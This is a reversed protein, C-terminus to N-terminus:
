FLPKEEIQKGCIEEVAFQVGSYAWKRESRGGSRIKQVSPFARVIEKGFQRESLPRYGNAKIWECYWHYLLGTIIMGSGSSEVFEKLFMRAPNMEERYDERAAEVLASKTFRGQQRLRALGLIAWNFIAPLEGSAEWWEAKDMGIVREEEPIQVLFPVLLMRRWIGDSRDSFRPRTNCSLMLRATPVINLGSIGKRDFYMRDGSTFSKVYGESMKDIEGVDGCINVLKGVTDTRSFRDGFVELQINSVNEGGLMATMAAGYASKGNAGEGELVLFKQQGTDPLLLYGAWEQLIAIREQDGELVRDLYAMWKPPAAGASADFSYPVSVLSFWKPSHPLLCESEDKGAMVAALDLIGNDMSVYSRRSRDEIWTGFEIEPSLIVMGSTALMVNSVIGGTVRRVEDTEGAQYARDFEAKISQALKARLEDEGIRRYRNRKWVYWESRWFRLTRGETSSAYRELNMRALRHPDDVSEALAAGPDTSTKAIAEGSSALTLLDAYTRSTIWDRVDKGHTDLVPFPLKVLRVADALYAAATAKMQAGEQGPKDADGIVNVTKGALSQLMWPQPKEGAGMANTIVAVNAPLDPISLVALLDTLGEVWWVISADPLRDTTGIWGPESGYTLKKGVWESIKYTGDTQKAVKPLQGGSANVIVHGVPRGTQGIVPVDIVVYRGRYKALRGGATLISAATIPPKSTCWLAAVADSWTVPALDKGPDAAPKGNKKHGNSNHHGNGNSSDIGLHDSVRRVVEPFTWGTLWGVTALGDGCHRRACQNCIVSGDGAQDTFRFRDTGGCKPCPHHQGDLLDGDCGGVASLIEAWRGRAAAKLNVINDPQAAPKRAIRAM